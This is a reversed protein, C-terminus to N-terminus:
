TAGLVEVTPPRVILVSRGVVIPMSECRHGANRARARARDVPSGEERRGLIEGGRLGRVRHVIVGLSPPV